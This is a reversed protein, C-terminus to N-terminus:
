RLGFRKRWHDFFGASSLCTVEFRSKNASVIVEDVQIVHTHKVKMCELMKDHDIPSLAGTKLAYEIQFRSTYAGNESIGCYTPRGSENNYLYGYTSAFSPLAVGTISIFLAILVILSGCTKM